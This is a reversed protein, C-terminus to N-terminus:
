RHAARHGNIVARFFEFSARPSRALTEPDVRVLGFQQTFGESGEWADTLGRHFYGRVDVGAAVADNVASLHGRLYEIRSRDPVFGAAGVESASDGYAAGNETIVLPPLRPYRQTLQLLLTTL